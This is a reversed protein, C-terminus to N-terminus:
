VHPEESRQGAAPLPSCPACGNRTPPCLPTAATAPPYILSCSFLLVLSCSFLSCHTIFECQAAICDRPKVIMVLAEMMVMGEMVVVMGSRKGEKRCGSLLALCRDTYQIFGYPFTSFSLFYLHVFLLACAQMCWIVLFFYLYVFCIYCMSEHAYLM